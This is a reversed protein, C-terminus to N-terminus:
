SERVGGSRARLEAIEQRLTRIETLIEARESRGQAVVAAEAARDAEREAEHQSQMADVVIGIFLNLVTFTTM